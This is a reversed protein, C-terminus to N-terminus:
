ASVSRFILIGSFLRRGVSVEKWPIMGYPQLSVVGQMADVDEPSFRDMFGGIGDTAVWVYEESMMGAMKARRFLRAALPDLMHVVFVRTPMAMLQYLVADIRANDTDSPVSAREMIKAGVGQLADALALLIGTGYV